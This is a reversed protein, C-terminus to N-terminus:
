YRKHFYKSFGDIGSSSKNKLNRVITDVETECTPHLFINKENVKTKKPVFNKDVSIKNATRKGINAFFDCLKNAITQSDRIETNNLKLLDICDRKNNLKGTVTHM